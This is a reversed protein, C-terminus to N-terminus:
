ITPLTAALHELLMKLSPARDSLYSRFHAIDELGSRIEKNQPTHLRTYLEAELAQLFTRVRERVQEEDKLFGVVWESRKAYSLSLFEKAGSTRPASLVEPYELFRSRLTSVLTGHPMLLVFVAGAQPEEFLKLLAQQAEHTISSVGLVFLAGGASFRLSALAALERSEDIGFKEWTRVYVDASGTGRNEFGFLARASAELAPLLGAAGEYLYAHHTHAM